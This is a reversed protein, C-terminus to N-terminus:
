DVLEGTATDVAPEPADGALAGVVAAATAPGFGPVAAVEEATAARLAKLSGFRAM